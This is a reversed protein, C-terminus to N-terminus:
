FTTLSCNILYNLGHPRCCSLSVAILSVSVVFVTVIRRAKMWPDRKTELPFAPAPACAAMRAVDVVHQDQDALGYGDGGGIMPSRDSDGGGGGVAANAALATFQSGGKEGGGSRSTASATGDYRHDGLNPVHPNSPGSSVADDEETAPAPIWAGVTSSSRSFIRDLEDHVPFM